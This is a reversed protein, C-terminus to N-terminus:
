TLAALPPTHPPRRFNATPQIQSPRRKSIIQLRKHNANRTAAPANFLALSGVRVCEIEIELPGIGVSEYKVESHSHM